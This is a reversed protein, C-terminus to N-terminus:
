AFVNSFFYISLSIGARRFFFSISVRVRQFYLKTQNRLQLEKAAQRIATMRSGHKWATFTYFNNNWRQKNVITCANQCILFFIEEM